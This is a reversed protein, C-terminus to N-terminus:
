VPKTKSPILPENNVVSVRSTYSGVELGKGEKGEPGTAGTAGTAGTSGTAGTAGIPGTPGAPGEEGFETLTFESLCEGLTLPTTVSVLQSNSVCLNTSSASATAPIIGIVAAVLIGVLYKKSM